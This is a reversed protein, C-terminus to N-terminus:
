APSTALFSAPSLISIGRFPHLALLDEDGSLLLDARGDLALSLFKDDRPDRCLRIPTRPEIHESIAWVLALFPEVAEPQVFRALKKRSLVIRLEELVELSILPIHDSWVRAVAQGPTSAHSLFRSIYVNTDIVVRQSM